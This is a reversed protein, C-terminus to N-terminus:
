WADDLEVPSELKGLLSIKNIDVKYIRPQM